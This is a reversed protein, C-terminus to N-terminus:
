MLTLQVEQKIEMLCKMTKKDPEIIVNGNTEENILQAIGTLEYAGPTIAIAMGEYLLQNNNRNVNFM